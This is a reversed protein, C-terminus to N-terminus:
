PLQNNDIVLALHLVSGSPIGHNRFTAKPKVNRNKFILRQIRPPFGTETEIRHKLMDITWDPNIEYTTTKQRTKILITYIDSHLQMIVPNATM